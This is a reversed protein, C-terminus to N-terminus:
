KSSKQRTSPAQARTSPSPSSASRPSSSAATTTKSCRPSPKARPAHAPSRARRARASVPLAHRRPSPSKRRTTRSHRRTMPTNPSPPRSAASRSSSAPSAPPTSQPPTAASSPRSKMAAGSPPRPKAANKRPSSPAASRPRRRSPSTSSAASSSPSSATASPATKTSPPHPARPPPRARSKAGISAPITGLGLAIWFLVLAPAAMILGFLWATVPQPDDGTIMAALGYFGSGLLGGLGLPLPWSEPVAIFSLIGAGLFTALAWALMRWGMRSPVARRVLNWGWVALPILAVLISLGFVQFALDAMVAGPFGLWNAAPKATAYSLSPDDVSWSALAVLLIAVLGLLVAGILRVPIVIQLVPAPAKRAAELLPQSPM